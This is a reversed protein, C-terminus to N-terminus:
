CCARSSSSRARWRSASSSGGSLENPRREGFGELRVTALAERVRRDREARGVGRTTLPFAVNQAATMHPFLAYSQFVMGIDRKHPPLRTIVRGDLQVEGADPAVFGSIIQLTTTKGSGSAGLLTLFEGPAIDVSVDRVAHVDGYRKALGQLQLRGTAAGANTTTTTTTM